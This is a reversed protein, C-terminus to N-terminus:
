ACRPSNLDLWSCKRPSVFSSLRVKGLNYYYYTHDDSSFSFLCEPRASEFITMSFTLYAFVREVLPPWELQLRFLVKTIDFLTFLISISAISGELAGPNAVVALSYLM